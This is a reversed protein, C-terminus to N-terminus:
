WAPATSTGAWTPPSTPPSTPGAHEPGGMFGMPTRQVIADELEPWAEVQRGVMPTATFGPALVNVRVRPALEVALSRGMAEIAGKVASYPAYPAFGSSAVTSSFFLVSAGEELHALAEQL